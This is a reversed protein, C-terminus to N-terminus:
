NIPTRIEIMQNEDKKKTSFSHLNILRDLAEALLTISGIFIISLCRRSDKHNM